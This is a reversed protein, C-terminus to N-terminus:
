AWGCSNLSASVWLPPCPTQCPCVSPLAPESTGPGDREAVSHGWIRACGGVRCCRHTHLVSPASEGGAPCRLGSGSSHVRRSLGGGTSGVPAWSLGQDPQSLTGLCLASPEFPGLGVEQTSTSTPRQAMRAPSCDLLISLSLHSLPQRRGLVRTRPGMELAVCVSLCSCLGLVWPSWCDPPDRSGAGTQRPLWPGTDTAEPLPLGM